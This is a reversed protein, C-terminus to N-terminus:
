VSKVFQKRQYNWQENKDITYSLLHTSATVVLHEIFFTNKSFECFEYSFM